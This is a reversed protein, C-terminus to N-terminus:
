IKKSKYEPIEDIITHTKLTLKNKSYKQADILSNKLNEFLKKERM